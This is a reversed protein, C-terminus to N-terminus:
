SQGTIYPNKVGLKGKVTVFATRAIRWMNGRRGTNAIPPDDLRIPGLPRDNEYDWPRAYPVSDDLRITQRGFSLQSQPTTRSYPTSMHSYMEDPSHPVTAVRETIKPPPPPAVIDEDLDIYATPLSDVATAM